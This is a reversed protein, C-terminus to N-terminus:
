TWASHRVQDPDLNNSPNEASSLTMNLYRLILICRNLKLKDYGRFHLVTQVGILYLCFTIGSRPGFQKFCLILLNEPNNEGEEPGKRSSVFPYPTRSVVRVTDPNKVLVCPGAFDFNRVLYKNQASICHRNLFFSGYINIKALCNNLTSSAALKNLMFLKNYRRTIM